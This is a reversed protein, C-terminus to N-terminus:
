KEELLEIISSLLECKDSYGRVSGYKNKDKWHELTYYHRILNILCEISLLKEKCKTNYM